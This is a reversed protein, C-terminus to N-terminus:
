RVDIAGDIRDYVVEHATPKLVCLTVYFTICMNCIYRYIEFCGINRLFHQVYQLYIDADKEWINM